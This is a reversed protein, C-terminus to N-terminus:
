DRRDDAVMTKNHLAWLLSDKFGNWLKDSTAQSDAFTHLTLLALTEPNQAQKAFKRIVAPDDLDRRQSVSAMLLHHEIVQRLTQTAAGDLGLRKAVRLALEASVAAHKGHGEPKGVDHLLLALYLLYPRELNQFLPAYARYPPTKRRGSAIM